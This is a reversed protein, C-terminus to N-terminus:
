LDTERFVLAISVILHDQLSNIKLLCNMRKGQLQALLLTHDACKMRSMPLPPFIGNCITSVRSIKKLRIYLLHRPDLCEHATAVM